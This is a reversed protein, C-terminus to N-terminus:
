AEAQSCARTLSEQVKRSKLNDGDVGIVVGAWCGCCHWDGSRGDRLGCNGSDIRGTGGCGRRGDRRRCRAARIGGVVDRQAWCAAAARADGGGTRIGGVTPRSTQQGACHVRGLHTASNCTVSHQVLKSAKIPQCHIGRATCRQEWRTKCLAARVCAYPTSALPVAVMGDAGSLTAMGEIECGTTELATASM